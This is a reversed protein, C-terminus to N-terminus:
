APADDPFATQPNGDGSEQVSFDEGVRRKWFLVNEGRKKFLPRPLNKSVEGIL